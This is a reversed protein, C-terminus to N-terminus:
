FTRLNENSFKIQELHGFRDSGTFTAWSKLFNGLCYDRCTKWLFHCKEFYGFINGYTQAM